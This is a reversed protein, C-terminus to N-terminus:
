CQPVSIRAEVPFRLSPRSSTCTPVDWGELFVNRACLLYVNDICTDLTMSHEAQIGGSHEM